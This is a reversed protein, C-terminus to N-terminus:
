EQRFFILGNEISLYGGKEIHRNIKTAVDNLVIVTKPKGCDLCILTFATDNTDFPSYSGLVQYRHKCYTM